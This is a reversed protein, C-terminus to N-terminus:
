SLVCVNTDVSFFVPPILKWTLIITSFKEHNSRSTSVMGPQDIETVIYGGYHTGASLSDSYAVSELSGGTREFSGLLKEMQGGSIDFENHLFVVLSLVAHRINKPLKEAM